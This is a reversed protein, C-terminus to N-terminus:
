GPAPRIPAPLPDALGADAVLDLDPQLVVALEAVLPEVRDARDPHGLVDPRLPDVLVEADQALREHRGAPQEVM